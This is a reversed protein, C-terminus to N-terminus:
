KILRARNRILMNKNMVNQELPVEFCAFIPYPKLRQETPKKNNETIKSMM